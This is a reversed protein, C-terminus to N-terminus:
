QQGQRWPRWIKAVVSDDLGVAEAVRACARSQSVPEGCQSPDMYAEIAASILRDRLENPPRGLHKPRSIEKAAM